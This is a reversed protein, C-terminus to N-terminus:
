LHPFSNKETKVAKNTGAMQSENLNGLRATQLMVRSLIREASDM